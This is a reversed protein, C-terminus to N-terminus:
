PSVKAEHLAAADVIDLARSYVRLDSLEGQLHARGIFGVTTPASVEPKHPFRGRGAEQADLFLVGEAADPMYSFVVQHWEGDNIKPGMLDAYGTNPYAPNRLTIRLTGRFNAIVFGPQAYIPGDREADVPIRIWFSVSYDGRVEFVEEDPVYVVSTSGNFAAVSGGRGDVIEVGDGTADRGNGSLDKFKDGDIQNLPWHAVLGDKLNDAHLPSAVGALM